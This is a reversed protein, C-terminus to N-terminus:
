LDADNREPRNPLYYVPLTDGVVKRRSSSSKEGTWRQGNEDQFEYRINYSTHRVGYSDTRSTSTVNIVNGTTKTGRNRIDYKSALYAAVIVFIIILVIIVFTWM